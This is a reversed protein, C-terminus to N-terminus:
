GPHLPISSSLGVSLEPKTRHHWVTDDLSALQGDLPGCVPCVLDDRATNHIRGTVVESARWATLNGEAYAQTAETVAIRRARKPDNLFGDVRKVLAPFDEHSEVWSALNSRLLKQDTNTLGKALKGAHRRAWDAVEPNVVDADVGLAWTLELIDIGAAAGLKAAQEEFGLLVAVYLAIWEDWFADDALLLDGPTARLAPKVEQRLRDILLASQKEWHLGLAARVKMEWDAFIAVLPSVKPRKPMKRAKLQLDVRELSHALSADVRRNLERAAVEAVLMM